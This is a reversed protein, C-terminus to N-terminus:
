IGLEGPAVFGALAAVRDVQDAVLEHVAVHAAAWEDAAAALALAGAVQGFGDARRHDVLPGAAHAQDGAALGELPRHVLPDLHEVGDLVHVQVLAHRHRSAAPGVSANSGPMDTREEHYPVE